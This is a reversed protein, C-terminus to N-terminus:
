VIKQPILLTPFVISFAMVNIERQKERKRRENSQKTKEIRKLRAEEATLYIRPRGRPM